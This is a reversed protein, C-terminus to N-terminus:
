GIRDRKLFCLTLSCRVFLVNCAIHGNCLASNRLVPVPYFINAIAGTIKATAANDSQIEESLQVWDM